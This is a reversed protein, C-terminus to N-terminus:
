DIAPQLYYPAAFAFRGYAKARDMPESIERLELKLSTPSFCVRVTKETQELLKMTSIKHWFKMAKALDIVNYTIKVIPDSDTPQAENLIFFKYGDPAMRVHAGSADKVM